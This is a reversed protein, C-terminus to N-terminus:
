NLKHLSKIDHFSVQSYQNYQNQQNLFSNIPQNQFGPDNLITGAAGSTNNANNRIYKKLFQYAM